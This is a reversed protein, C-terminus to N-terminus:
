EPSSVSLPAQSFAAGNGVMRWPHRIRGAGERALPWGPVKSLAEKKEKNRDQKDEGKTSDGSAGSSSGTAGPPTLLTVRKEKPRYDKEEKMAVAQSRVTSARPGFAGIPM